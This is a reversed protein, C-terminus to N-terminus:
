PIKLRLIRHILHFEKVHCKLIGNRFGFLVLLPSSMIESVKTTWLKSLCFEIFQLTRLSGAFEMYQLCFLVIYHFLLKKTFTFCYNFNVVNGLRMCEEEVGRWM